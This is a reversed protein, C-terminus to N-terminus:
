SRFYKKETKANLIQKQKRKTFSGSCVVKFEQFLMITQIINSKVM